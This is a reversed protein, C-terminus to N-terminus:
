NNSNFYSLIIIDWKGLIKILLDSTDCQWTWIILNNEFMLMLIIRINILYMGIHFYTIVISIEIYSNVILPLIGFLYRMLREFKFWKREKTYDTNIYQFVLFTINPTLIILWWEYSYIGIYKVRFIDIMQQLYVTKCQNM